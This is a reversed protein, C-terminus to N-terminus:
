DFLWSLLTQTVTDPIKVAHLSVYLVYLDVWCGDEAVFHLNHLNKKIHSKKKM